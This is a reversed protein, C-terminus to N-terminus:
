YLMRKGHIILSLHRCGDRITHLKSRRKVRMKSLTVSEQGIKLGKKAAIAIMETAFEMGTTRFRLRDSAEKTIGRLGCHFDHIDTNFRLRGLLSLVRVGLKHSLPMAGKEMGGAFRDGIMMDYTGEALPKYLMKADCFDYTTDCDGMIIVKGRAARIGARLARGYGTKPVSIVRVGEARALEASADTSANDAVIIEGTLSNAEIFSRANMICAVVAAEENRCPMVVSVDFGRHKREM